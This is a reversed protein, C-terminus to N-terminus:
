ELTEDSEPLRRTVDELRIVAQALAAFDHQTLALQQSEHQGSKHSTKRVLLERGDTSEAILEHYLDTASPAAALQLSGAAAWALGYGGIVGFLLQSRRNLLSRMSMVKDSNSEVTMPPPPTDESVLRWAAYEEDSLAMMTDFSIQEEEQAARVVAAGLSHVILM